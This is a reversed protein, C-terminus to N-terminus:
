NLRPALREALVKSFLKGLCHILSIPRYVRSPPTGLIADFHQFAIDAKTEEDFALVGDNKQLSRIFKKKRRSNAHLHFFKTPADGEKLWLM